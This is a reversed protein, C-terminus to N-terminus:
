KRTIFNEEKARTIIFIKLRSALRSRFIVLARALKESKKWGIRFNREKGIWNDVFGRTWRWRGNPQRSLEGGGGKKWEVKKTRKKALERQELAFLRKGPAIFRFRASKLKILSPKRSILHAKWQEQNKNNELLVDNQNPPFSKIFEVNFKFKM